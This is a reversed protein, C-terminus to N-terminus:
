KFALASRASEFAREFNREDDDETVTIDEALYADILTQREQEPVDSAREYTLVTKRVAPERLVTDIVTDVTRGVLDGHPRDFIDFPVAEAPALVLDVATGRSVKTGAPVSQALVRPSQRPLITTLGELLFETKQLDLRAAPVQYGERVVKAKAAQESLDVVVLRERAATTRTATATTRTATSEERTLSTTRSPIRSDAM